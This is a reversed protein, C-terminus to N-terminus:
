NHKKSKNYTNSNWTPCQSSPLQSLCEEEIIVPYLPINEKIENISTIKCPTWHTIPHDEPKDLAFALSIQRGVLNEPIVKTAM